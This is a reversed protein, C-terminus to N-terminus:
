AYHRFKKGAKKSSVSGSLMREEMIIRMTVQDIIEIIRPHEEKLRKTGETELAAIEASHDPVIIQKVGNVEAIQVGNMEQTLQNNEMKEEGKYFKM